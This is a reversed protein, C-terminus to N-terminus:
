APTKVTELKGSKKERIIAGGISTLKHELDEYGRDLYPLGSISCENEAILAAMVYAFGARLDPVHIEKGILPTPGKVILSTRQIQRWLSVGCLEDASAGAASM